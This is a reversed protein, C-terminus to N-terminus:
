TKAILCKTADIKRDNRDGCKTTDTSNNLRKRSVSRKLLRNPPRFHMRDIILQAAIVRMLVPM